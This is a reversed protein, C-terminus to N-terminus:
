ILKKKLEEADAIVEHGESFEKIKEKDLIDTKSLYVLVPKGFEKIRGYLMEQDTLPYIGTLDFVYIIKDAIMKMVFYAQQEIYNMKNFRNLTGPTDLLQIIKKGDKEIYGVMTKRTTFPYAAVEPKSSSLKGLLTSKGVNPFGAIAVQKLRTKIVPFSQLIKRAEKLFEFDKKLNKILSSVRGYFEKKCNQIHSIEKAKKILENYKRFLSDVKKSTWMINGLTKKLKEIGITISILKQYFETLDKITPFTKLIDELKGVLVDRVVQIKTLEITKIRDLKSTKRLSKANAAKNAKRIAIDLYNDAAELPKIEQFAM